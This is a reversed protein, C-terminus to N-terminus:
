IHFGHDVKAVQIFYKTQTILSVGVGVLWEDTVVNELCDFFGRNLCNHNYNSDCCQRNKIIGGSKIDTIYHYYYFSCSSYVHLSTLMCTYDM